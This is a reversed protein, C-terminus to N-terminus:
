GVNQRCSWNSMETRLAFAKERAKRLQELREKTTIIDGQKGKQKTIPHNDPNEILNDKNTM